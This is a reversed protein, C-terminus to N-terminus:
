DAISAALQPDKAAAIERIRRLDLKGTGLVPLEDVQHFDGPRPRFLAPLAPDLAAILPEIEHSPVTHLVALREGKRDDAVATVAFLQAAAEGHRAAWAGHLAEEVCGHPVMEGGIKSFRSLRDTIHLFGGDDLRAIDGTEYWGDVLAAATLDDRGLYGRMVNPGRVLLLGPEGCPLLERTDPDVIRVAVGPLPRGVAGCAVGAQYHGPARYGPTSVAIVPACETTGYGELPAVGFKQEFAAALRPQLKEAGALVLRLSGFQGSSCRRLYVQLFTPTALLSTLRHREVLAGVKAGDLPNPQFVMRAGCRSAHWLSMVGFSHFLPLIALVGDDGDLPLVRDVAECDSAINAHSLVVGKPDGTSGSSFIVAAPDDGVVARPAGCSRELWGMPLLLARWAAAFRDRRGLGARLDELFVPEVGDPVSVGAAELFARSTLVHTLGAQRVASATASAGTTYNLPVLTRGALSAAMASCAGGISPPLLMGVRLTGSEASGGARLRGRPGWLARAVAVAGILMQWGTREVGAHDAFLRKRPHRRLVARLRHHLPRADRAAEIAHEAGLEMVRQRVDVAKSSAPMPEGFRVTVDKTRDAGDRRAGRPVLWGSRPMDLYVPLVPVERGKLLRELGPRFALMSGSRSIEGEAFICVLEGRDLAEGARRLSQLMARPGQTSAIPIAGLASLFPRLWRKQYWAEEVLFRVPRDISAGLFLGDAFSVHNPVLLAGGEAPVHERGRVRLRYVTHTVILLAGRLMAVPLLYIAWATAAALLVSAVVLVGSSTLGAQALWNCSLTGLLIGGFALFNMLGVISGRREAPAKWQILANLPVVIWGSAVGGLLMLAMTLLLGPEVLGVTAIVATLGIAGLPILGIEVREGSLRGALVAGIGVGIALVALPLGALADDFGLVNVGYVLMDQSLLSALGWYVTSGFIALMLARDARVSRVAGGLVARFPQRQAAPAVRPIRLSAVLGLVALSTLAVGPLWLAGRDGALLLGGAITGLIIAVFSSLELWGNAECLRAHPVIEPLIGYKAPAFLASQAGMGALVALMWLPEGVVLAVTGAAMLVVELAKTAVLLTRKSLCDGLVMAPLSALMLPVTFAVFATTAMAQEAQEIALAGAGPAVLERAGAMAILAVMMKFANDNFAGLAQATLLGWLSPGRRAPASRHDSDTM